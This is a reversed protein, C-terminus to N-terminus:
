IRCSPWRRPIAARASAPFRPPAASSARCASWIRAARWARWRLRCRCWRRVCRRLCSAPRARAGAGGMLGAPDHLRAQARLRFRDHRDVLDHPLPHTRSGGAHGAGGGDPDRDKSACRLWRRGGDSRGRCIRAGASGEAGGAFTLGNNDMRSLIYNCTGNLIGEIRFLRDGALGERVARVIPIGGAVSAEFLLERKQRRALALLEM